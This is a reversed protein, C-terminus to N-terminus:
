LDRREVNYYRTGVGFLRALVEDDDAEYSDINGTEPDTRSLIGTPYRPPLNSVALAVPYSTSEPDPQSRDILVREVGKSRVRQDSSTDVISIGRFGASNGPRIKNIAAVIINGKPM